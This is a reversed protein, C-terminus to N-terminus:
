NDYDRKLGYVAEAFLKLIRNIITLNSIAYDAYAYYFNEPSKEM